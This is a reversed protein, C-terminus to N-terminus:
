FIVTLYNLGFNDAKDGAVLFVCNQCQCIWASLTMTCFHLFAGRLKLNIVATIIVRIVSLALNRILPALIAPPPLPM